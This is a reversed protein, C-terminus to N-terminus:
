GYLSVRKRWRRIAPRLISQILKPYEIGQKEAMITLDSFGPSLGPLPNVEIFYVGKDNMRFDIRAFDRCGLVRFCKLSFKRIKKWEDQSIKAPCEMKLYENDLQEDLQKYEFTYVPMEGASEKFVIELPRLVKPRDGGLVGVTMERGQIYEQILVQGSYDKQLKLFAAELEAQNNVVSSSYIGKSTGEYNPKVIIPFSMGQIKPIKKGDVVASKPTLIGEAEVLRCTVAKDLTLALCTADSGTHEVGMLDCLAPVQAERSRGGGGEAINFVIDIEDEVLRQALDRKAEIGFVPFGTTQLASLLAKITTPSDFEAEAEYDEDHHTKRKMNYVLAVNPKRKHSHRLPLKRTKLDLRSGAATIIQGLTQSYNLGHRSSAEFLGAGPQLSPLANLEIFYVDGNPTVRFDARGMDVVGLARVAKAMSRTVQDAQKQTIEAPCRVGVLDDQSNKLEYDYIWGDPSAPGVYEVPSLVGEKGIGAVFPVTIDKGEIYSEVLLGEPFRSLLSEVVRHLEEKDNCKSEKSIGKSSGEFNPKVFVPFELDSELNSLEEIRSVFVGAPVMVGHKLVVQKTLYKDLTLFCSYSGSGVFPLGLQEFVLPAYSERGVGTFGEATNFILDPKLNLLRDIWAGDRTMDVLDVTHGCAQIGQSIAEVVEPTDFEAEAEDKSRQLNHVFAIKM